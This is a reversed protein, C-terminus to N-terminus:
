AYLEDDYKIMYGTCSPVGYRVAKATHQDTHILSIEETGLKKEKTM